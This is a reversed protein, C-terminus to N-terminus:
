KGPGYEPSIDDRLRAEASLRHAHTGELECIKAAWPAIRAGGAETAEQHTLTKCYTGAWIGGSYRAVELTPLSHNTGVAKDGFVVPSHAGLFLSGYNTLEDVISRPEDIMVQLHEIAYENAVEIADAMTEALVVEGNETWCERAVDETELNPLQESLAGVTAEAIDRDTSVLIPRSNPDHEAQALLDTAVLDPDATEDTLILVESPGALFDIGVHGFVQRKAETTFVNGPGTIKAVSPVTETGYAMAAIAQAGGVSYIEDAGAQDMAYLQAPQISGDDQPPACTVIREVGVVDAPVITMAPAAVLPHRGGPVYTGASEVPVIRQGLRVGEEFETEFDSIHERQQEHFARVNAITNDITEKEIDTLEERAADIEADGIRVDDVEIGDFRETFEYVADDGRDRVAGVIDQVADTVEQDIEISADDAEKLYEITAM